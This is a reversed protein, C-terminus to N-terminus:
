FLMKPKCCKSNGFLWNVRFSTSLLRSFKSASGFHTRHGVGGTLHYGLEIRRFLEIGFGATAFVRQSFADNVDYNESAYGYDVSQTWVDTTSRDLNANVQQIGSGNVYLSSGFTYGMNSGVGGYLNFWRTVNLQRNITVGLNVESSTTGINLYDYNGTYDSYYVGDYRNFIANADFEINFRDNGPIGLTVFARVNPNECYARYLDRPAFDRNLFQSNETDKGIGIIYDADINRLMDQDQGFSVGVKKIMWKGPASQSYASFILGCALLSLIYKKM